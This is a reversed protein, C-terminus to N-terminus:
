ALVSHHKKRAPVGLIHAAVEAFRQSLRNSAPLFKGEVYCEYLAAYDNPVSTFVPIGIMKELEPVTVDPDEPMRNVIARLHEKPYGRNLLTGAIHQALRLAPVELTTVVFTTDVHECVSMGLPTVGRGLDLVVAAYQTRLFRLVDHMQDPTPLPRLNPTPITGLVDVGPRGESVLGKWFSADLRDLNEVIDLLSYAAMVGMLFSVLGVELDLDGLLVREDTLSALEMATHTAITTAGCGGKSSVVAAIRGHSQSESRRRSEEAIRELAEKLPAAVPPYIFEAAGAHMARLIREPTASTDMAFVVPSSKAARIRRLPEELGDQLQAVDYLVVDPHLRELNSTFEIWDTVEVQDLVIRCGLGQLVPRAEDNLQRTGIVLAATLPYM